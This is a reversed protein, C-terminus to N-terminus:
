LSDTRMDKAFPGNPNICLPIMWFLGGLMHQLDQRDIKELEGIYASKQQDLKAPAYLLRAIFAIAVTLMFAATAAVLTNAVQHNPFLAAKGTFYALSLGFIPIGLLWQWNNAFNVSGRGAEPFLRIWYNIFLRIRGM